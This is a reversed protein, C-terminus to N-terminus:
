TPSLRMEAFRRPIRVKILRIRTRAIRAQRFIQIKEGRERKRKRQWREKEVEEYGQRNEQPM